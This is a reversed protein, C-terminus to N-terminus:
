LIATVMNEGTMAALAATTFSDTGNRWDRDTIYYFETRAATNITPNLPYNSDDTDNYSQTLHVVGALASDWATRWTIRYGLCRDFSASNVVPVIDCGRKFVVNPNIAKFYYTGSETFNGALAVLDTTGDVAGQPSTHLSIRTTTNAYIYYQRGYFVNTNVPDPTDNGTVNLVIIGTPANETTVGAGAIPFGSPLAAVTIHDAVPLTKTVTRIFYGSSSWRCISSSVGVDVALKDATVSADALKDETVSEDELLATNVFENAFKARGAVDATFIADLIKALTIYSDAMKARGATDATLVGDVLKTLTVSDAALKAATVALNTIEDTTVTNDKPTGDDDFLTGLLANLSTKLDRIREAGRKLAETDAPISDDFIAM